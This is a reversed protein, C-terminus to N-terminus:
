SYSLAQPQASLNGKTRALVRRGPDQPHKAVLLASRAAGIIGISGGGRYLPESVSGLKNLHRVVLVAAQTREALMKVRPLVRRVDSDKHADVKGALFAMLPDIVVFVVKLDIVTQEIRDLDDPLVPPRGQDGDPLETLAHIKSLDADMALLRPKITRALDDEANLILVDGPECDGPGGGPPMAWGR